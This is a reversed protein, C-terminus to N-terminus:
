SGGTPPGTCCSSAGGGLGSGYPEVVALAAAAAVAADFANGGAALVELAAETALPHATAVAAAPPREGPLAGCPVPLLLALLLLMRLHRVPLTGAM